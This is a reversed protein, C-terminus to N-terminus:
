QERRVKLCIMVVGYRKHRRALEVIRERLEVDRDPRPVYRLASVSMWVVARARREALEREM